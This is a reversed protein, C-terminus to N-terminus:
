EEWVGVEIRQAAADASSAPAAVGDTYHVQVQLGDLTWEDYSVRPADVPVAGTGWLWTERPMPMRALLARRSDFALGLPVDAFKRHVYDARSRPPCGPTVIGERYLTISSVALPAGRKGDRPSALLDFGADRAVVLHGRAQKPVFITGARALAAKVAAGDLPAGLLARLTAFSVERVVTTGSKTSRATRASRQVKRKPTAM